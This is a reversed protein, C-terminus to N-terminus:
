KKGKQAIEVLAADVAQLFAESLTPHAHVTKHIDELTLNNRIALTPEAVLESAWPGIACFGKLYNGDHFIKVFGDIDGLARAKGNAAFRFISSPLTSNRVGVSSIEPLTFIAAPIITGDFEKRKGMLTSAAAEAQASAFHALMTLGTVDGVAYINEVSTQMMSNVHIGKSYNVGLKDLEKKDFSPQVGIAVLIRDGKVSKAGNEHLFSIEDEKIGTVKAETFVNIGERRMLRLIEESIDADETPLLRQAMEIIIVKSGFACFLSAFECGIYGGGIIVLTAPLETVELLTTSNLVFPNDETHPLAIPKAGTAIVINKTKLEKGNVVVTHRDKIKGEGSIVEVNHENMVMGIGRSLLGSVEDKRQMLAAFDIQVEGSIGTGQAKKLKQLLTATAHLTKTPICGYNTCAGGLKDKEILAAKGGLDAVLRACEYGGPGSGIIIADYM